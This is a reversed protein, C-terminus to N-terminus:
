RQHLTKSRVALQAALGIYTQPTLKALKSRSEASLPLEALMNLYVDRDIGRGRTLAKIQEYAGEFGEMRLLTQVPEALVEWAGALATAVQNEDVELKLLGRLASRYAVLSHGMASGFNRQVTSDSLDRQLRSVPLTEVFHRLLANAVGLNGEANEFDIPNVKHPMTSSGVENEQVNLKFYSMSIYTWIDRCLDLLVQNYSALANCYRAMFDHPEIQTTMVNPVLGLGSIFDSTLQVWDTTPSAVMHANFNGVAGNFKGLIDVQNLDEQWRRLRDSVNALEKGMTTPSAPQGHTHSLIAVNAYNTAMQELQSQLETHAEAFLRDRVDRLMMAYALNNIDESTCCFHILELNLTGTLSSLKEKIFYEVAKVDHNTQQELEAIRQADQIDFERYLSRLSAITTEELTAHTVEPCNQYLHIFWEVEVQVRYQHLAMESVYEHLTPVYRRYRGDLVSVADITM